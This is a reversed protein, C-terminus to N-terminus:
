DFIASSSDINKAPLSQNAHGNTGYEEIQKTLIDIQKKLRKNEETRTNLVSTLEEVAAVLRQIPNM